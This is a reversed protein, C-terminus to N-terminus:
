ADREEHKTFFKPEGRKEPTSILFMKPKETFIQSLAKSLSEKGEEDLHALALDSELLWMGPAIEVFEDSTLGDYNLVKTYCWAVLNIVDNIKNEEHPNIYITLAGTNDWLAPLGMEKTIKNKSWNFPKSRIRIYSRPKFNLKINGDDEITKTYTGANNVEDNKRYILPIEM